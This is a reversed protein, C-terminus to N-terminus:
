RIQFVLPQVVDTRQLRCSVGVQRPDDPKFTWKGVTSISKEDFEDFPISALVRPNIVNGAQDFELGLIVAGFKGRMARGTPYRMKPKQIMKGACHPLGAEDVSEAALSNAFATDSGYTALIQEIEDESPHRKRSSEFYADMAMTWATSKWKLDRAWEPQEGTEDRYARTFGEVHAMEIMAEEDLDGNFQALAVIFRAEAYQKPLLDSVPALHDRAATASEFMDDYDGAATDNVMLSLYAKVTEVTPADDYATLAAVLDARTDKTIESIYADQAIVVNTVDVEQSVANPALLVLLIMFSASVFNKVIPEM